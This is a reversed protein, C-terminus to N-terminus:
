RSHHPSSEISDSPEDSRETLFSAKGRAIKMKNTIELAKRRMEEIEYATKPASSYGNKNKTEAEHKEVIELARRRIETNYEEKIKNEETNTNKFGFLASINNIMNDLPNHSSSM